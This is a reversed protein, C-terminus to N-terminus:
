TVIRLVMSCHNQCGNCKNTVELSLSEVRGEDIYITEM